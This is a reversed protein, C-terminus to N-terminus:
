KRSLDYKKRQTLHFFSRGEFTEWRMKSALKKVNKFLSITCVFPLFISQYYTLYSLYVQAHRNGPLDTEDRIWRSTHLLIPPLNVLCFLISISFLQITMKRQKRWLIPLGVRHKHRMVRVLLALSFIVIIPTPLLENIILNWISLGPYLKIWKELEACMPRHYNYSFESTLILSVLVCGYTLSYFLLIAMPFFHIWRRGYTTLIYHHHFILIHRQISALAVLLTSTVYIQYAVIMWFICLVPSSPRVYGIRLYNLYFSNDVFQSILNVFLLVIIIHNHLAQRLKENDLLLYLLFISCFISPIDFALLIGFRISYPLLEEDLTKNM